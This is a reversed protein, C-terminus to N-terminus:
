LGTMPSVQVASDVLVALHNIDEQCDLPIQGRRPHEEDLRELYARRRYLDRGVPGRAVCPHQILQQRLGDVADLLVRIFWDLRVVAPEFDPQAPHASEFAVARCPRDGGTVCEHLVQASSVVVDGGFMGDM